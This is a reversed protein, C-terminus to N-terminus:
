IYSILLCIQFDLVVTKIQRCTYLNMRHVEINDSIVDLWRNKNSSARFLFSLSVTALFLYLNKEELYYLEHCTRDQCKLYRIAFKIHASVSTTIELYECEKWGLWDTLHPFKFVGSICICIWINTLFYSISSVSLNEIIESWVTM